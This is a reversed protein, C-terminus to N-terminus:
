NEVPAAKGQRATGVKKKRQSGKETERYRLGNGIFEFPSDAPLIWGGNNKMKLIREAHSFEFDGQMEGAVLRVKTTKANM